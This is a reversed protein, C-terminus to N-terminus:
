NNRSKSKWAPLPFIKYLIVPVVLRISNDKIDIFDISEFWTRFSLPNVVTNINNLVNQWLNKDNM